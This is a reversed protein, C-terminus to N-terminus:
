GVGAPNLLGYIWITAFAIAFAVLSYYRNFRLLTRASIGYRSQLSIQVGSFPSLGVGLSWGLLLAIGLLNPDEVSPILISGALVASTVPHMGIFALGVLAAVTICAELSGFHAPALQIDLTLLLAGVGSALVAASLFLLVESSMRPLGEHIHGKLKKGSDGKYRLPLWVLSFLLAILTVLTLVSIEPWLKHAIMVLMALVVPAWLAKLHMPYGRTTAAEPHRAIQVASILMALFAFPLGYLMLTVLNSGPASLLVVGMAAFFPSWAACTSFSRLVTLGQLPTLPRHASLRDGLIMVASINIVAGILHGGFLTGLLVNRGSPLKEEDSLESLTVLRLFSVGILMAIIMHNAEVAKLLYRTNGDILFAILLGLAGAILLVGSQIIQNRKQRKLLVLATFWVPIGAVYGPLSHTLTALLSLPLMSLLIWGSLPNRRTPHNVSQSAPRAATDM